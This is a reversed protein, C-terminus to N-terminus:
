LIHTPAGLPQLAADTLKKLVFWSIAYASVVIIIGIVAATLLKKAKEIQDSNGRDTMWLFGGYIILALFVIGLFSLVVNIILAIIKYIEMNANYGAATGVIEANKFADKLNAKNALAFNGMVFSLTLILVLLIKLIKHM